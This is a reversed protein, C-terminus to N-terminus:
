FAQVLEALDKGDVDGDGNFDGACNGACNTRGFEIAFGEVSIDIDTNTTTATMNGAADYSYTITTTKSGDKIVTQVLRNLKDYSHTTTAAYGSVTIVASLFLLLLFFTSNPKNISPM